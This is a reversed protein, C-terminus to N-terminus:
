EPTFWEFLNRNSTRRREEERLKREKEHQVSAIWQNKLNDPYGLVTNIGHRFFRHDYRSFEQNNREEFLQKIEENREARVQQKWPHEPDHLQKNRNEWMKWQIRFIYEVLTAAWNRSSQKYRTGQRILWKEQADEWTTAIRGYVFPRWGLADQSLLAVRTARPLPDHKFSEKPRRPWSILRQEIVECIYPETNIEELKDILEKVAQRWTDKATKAKCKLIHDSDELATLCLPCRDQTWQQRRKMVKGTANTGSLQKTIWQRQSRPFESIAQGIADRNIDEIHGYELPIRKEEYPVSIEEGYSADYLKNRNLSTQYMGNIKLTWGEKNVKRDQCIDQDYRTSNWFAKAMADCQINMNGEYTITKGKDDQHGQVWFFEIKVPLKITKEVIFSLLDYSKYKAKLYKTDKLRKVVSEGDLGIKISGKRINFHKILTELVMIVGCVGALESRFPSQDRPLGPVKNLIIIKSGPRNKVEIVAASTGRQLKFSGDSVAIVEGRKIAEAIEAGEHCLHVQEVAWKDEEPLNELRERLNRNMQPTRPINQQEILLLEGEENSTRIFDARLLDAPLKYRWFGPVRRFAGRLSRTSARRHKRMYTTWVAGHKSFIKGENQSYWFIWNSSEEATSLPGINTQWKGSIPNLGGKVLFKRWQAWKLMQRPPKRRTVTSRYRKHKDNGEYAWKCIQKGDLLTIDALTVVELFQRCLNLERLIDKDDTLKRFFLMIFEDRGARGNLKPLSDELSIKYNIMFLVTNRVWTSTTGEIIEKPCETLYGPTGCEWRCEEWTTEILQKNHRNAYASNMIAEIHTIQQLFYPHKIDLGSFNKSSFVLDRSMTSVIGAKNLLTGLFIKVISDWEEKSLDIAEMPYELTKAFGATYSYWARNKSIIGTRLQEAYIRAKNKLHKIQERQNGDMALHIGLTERAQSPELRCIEAWEGDLNTAKIRGSQEQKKTYRWKGNEFKFDLMYWFAKMDDETGIAGGTSRILGEWTTIAQQAKHLTRTVSEYPDDATHIVDTDDVFAFGAIAIVQSTLSSLM